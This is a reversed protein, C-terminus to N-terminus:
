SSIYIIVAVKDCLKQASIEMTQKLRSRKFLLEDLVKQILDQCTM